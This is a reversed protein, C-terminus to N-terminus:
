HRVVVRESAESERRVVRGVELAQPCRDRPDHSPDAVFLMGLGMNFVRLMEDFSVGGLDRLLSFIPPVPWAGWHLEASVNEPLVRPLNGPIGGGTIHAIAKVEALPQLARLYSPHPALLADGLSQRLRGGPDQSLDMGSVIKRALTFGNTHLGISPLGWVRDGPQVRSGDIQASREVVGVVTGALDLHGPAYLEPLQATEGGLLACGNERCAAAM